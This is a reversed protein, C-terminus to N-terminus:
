KADAKKPIIRFSRILHDQEEGYEVVYLLDGIARFAIMNEANGLYADLDGLKKFHPDFVQGKADQIVVVMNDFAIIRDVYPAEDFELTAPQSAFAKRYLEKEEEPLDRRVVPINYESELNGKGDFVKVANSQSQGLYIRNSASAPRFENAFPRFIYRKKDLWEYKKYKIEGLTKVPTFSEDTLFTKEKGISTSAQHVVLYENTKWLISRGVMPKSKIFQHNADFYHVKGAATDMVMIMDKFCIVQGPTLLEGPGEGKRSFKGLYKGEMDWYHVHSTAIDLIYLREPSADFYYPKELEPVKFSTELQLTYDIMLVVALSLIM